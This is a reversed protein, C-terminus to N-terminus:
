LELSGYNKSKCIFGLSDKWRHSNCFRTHEQVSSPHAKLCLFAWMYSANFFSLFLFFVWIKENLLANLSFLLCLIFHYYCFMDFIQEQDIHLSSNQSVLSSENVRTELHWSIPRTSWTPTPYENFLDILLPQVWSSTFSPCVALQQVTGPVPAALVSAGSRSAPTGVGPFHQHSAPTSNRGPALNQIKLSLPSSSFSLGM